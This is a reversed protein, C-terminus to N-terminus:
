VNLAESFGINGDRFFTKMRRFASVYDADTNASLDIYFARKEQALTKLAFNYGPSLIYIKCAPLEVYVKDLLQAYKELFEKENYTPRKEDEDGLSLFLKSPMLDFVCTDLVNLAEDVTLGHISRNYIVRDLSFDQKLEDLPFEELFTSGFFLLQGKLVFNNLRKYKELTNSFVENM